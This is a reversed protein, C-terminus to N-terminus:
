IIKKNYKNVRHISFTLDYAKENLWYIYIAIM